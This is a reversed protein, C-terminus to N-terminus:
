AWIRDHRRRMDGAAGGQEDGGLRGQAVGMDPLRRGGGCDIEACGTEIYKVTGSGVVDRDRGVGQGGAIPEKRGARASPGEVHNKVKKAM